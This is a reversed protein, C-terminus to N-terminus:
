EKKTKCYEKITEQVSESSTRKWLDRTEKTIEIKLPGWIDSAMQQNNTEKM